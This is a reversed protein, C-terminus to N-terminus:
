INEALEAAWDALSNDRAGLVLIVDHPGTANVLLRRAAARSPVAEAPLDPHRRRWSELVEGAHPSFSSTGGAYYPEFLYFRDAARLERALVAGLEDRMFGFPGYGHPQFFTFVKGDDGALERAANLAGAIKEPNHAYDDYVAAGGATRGKFDFRRSVGSTALAADLASQADAGLLKLLEAAALVNLATHRGPAPLTRFIGDGFDAQSVGRGARYGALWQGPIPASIRRADDANGFIRLELGPRLRARVAQWVSAELVAGRRAQNVFQAFMAALEAKPYHDTGINLVLAYDPHFALLSKDSEDAEFVLPGSGARFNGPAEPTAFAKIFGGDICEPDRQLHFLAEAILATTSTKGCSGAVAISLRGGNGTARLILDRLAAARHRRPCEPAAAFDPNDPEIASSYIIADPMDAGSDAAFRSGDQPFLRIDRRRLAEALAANEPHGLGRDSGSVRLGLARAFQALGSMGIGCIGVFHWSETSNTM